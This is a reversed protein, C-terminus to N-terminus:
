SQAEDNLGLKERQTKLRTADLDRMKQMVKPEIPVDHKCNTIHQKCEGCFIWAVLLDGVVSICRPPDEEITFNKPM